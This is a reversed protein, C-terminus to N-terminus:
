VDWRYFGAGACIDKKYAIYLLLCPFMYLFEGTRRVEPPLMNIVLALPKAQEAKPLLLEAWEFMAYNDIFVLLGLTIMLPYAFPVAVYRILQLVSGSDLSFADLMEQPMTLFCQRFLVVSFPSFFQPLLVAIPTNILRLDRMMMYESLEIAQFPMLSIVLYLCFFPEKFRFPCKAFLFGIPLSIVVSAFASVLGYYFSNEQFRFFMYHEFLLRGMARESVAGVVVEFVPLAFLLSVVSLMLIRFRKQPKRKSGNM